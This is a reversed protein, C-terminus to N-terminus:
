DKKNNYEFNNEYSFTPAWCTFDLDFLDKYTNLSSM